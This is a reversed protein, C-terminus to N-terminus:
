LCRDQILFGHVGRRNQKSFPVGAETRVDIVGNERGSGHLRSSDNVAQIFFM